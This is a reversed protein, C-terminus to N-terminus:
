KGLMKPYRSKLREEESQPGGGQTVGSFLKLPPTAPKALAPEITKKTWLKDAAKRIQEESKIEFTDCLDKLKVADGNDYEEAIGWISIERLTDYAIKISEAHTAREGELTERDTKLQKREEKAAKLEKNATIREPDDKSLDDIRAELKEIEATNEALEDTKSSLQKELTSVKVELEKKERGSESKLTHLLKEVEEQSYSQPAEPSIKAPEPTEGKVEPTVKTQGKAEPTTGTTSGKVGLETTM